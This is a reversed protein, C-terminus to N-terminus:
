QILVTKLDSFETTVLLKYNEFQDNLRVAVTLVMNSVLM